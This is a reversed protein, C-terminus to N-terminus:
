YHFATSYMEGAFIMRPRSSYINSRKDLLDFAIRADNIIVITQGLVTISSIPGYTDKLKLWHVWDQQGPSPLDALNGIIPKPPPGPPLPAIPKKNYFVHKILYLLAFGVATSLLISLVAM